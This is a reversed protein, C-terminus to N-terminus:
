YPIAADPKATSLVRKFDRQIRALAEKTDAEFRLVIVPTTNSARMLGFGDAYEVRLGDITNIETAGDFHATRQLEAILKHNEGEHDLPVNLEPTSISDPLAELVKSANPSRSVIELLRAGAYMGDDFGYWRDKFFVHGSMEGALPAGTEKLKSKILSHGTKWLLPKGGHKRIWPFLNRTCKVDFIVEAGPNRSLVEEAFLMLQRDPYIIKGSKTVVGLRDGDGDFALGLEADSDALKAILDELNEPKSPDPHHNPFNGDVDCFLEIVKCGLKRFLEPAYAGPSGNGCDVAITMSRSLKVDSIIRHIYVDAIDATEVKGAGSALKGGEILRRLDQISEAALTDGAIMMKLGNYEPPNHSGTVMVGSGTAFHHTAFYVMPTAVVGIDVVDMGAANLGRSLARALRPGSLRGDRGVVFRNVAKARAMTGLARGITEAGEETLTKDVIGRIDYAKFIEPAIPTM